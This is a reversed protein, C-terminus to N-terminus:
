KPIDVRVIALDWPGLTIKGARAVPKGTLVDRGNELSYAFERKGDSFNFYAHVEAGDALVAHKAKVGPPLAADALLIGAENLCDAVVKEQLVDSLVTGEYTLVGKGFENRTIAPYAGFVPHDYFALGRCTEPMLYEAWVSVRNAEGARFPDGKLRLPQKLNTFEQYSFGCAERLPGPATAWRVTANEDSFGSKFTMLVHGGGKVYDSLKRLLGDAAIYLAPVIVLAYDSFRPEEPYVFDTEINLGYLTRYLQDLLTMYGTKADFPMASLAHLSDLSYLIAVRNKKKLNALVPGVKRLEGAIRTVERYARGPELDHGLVGKWYTEQGFHLSHWHWYGVLNAGSLVHAYAALRLQGDYPPYQGESSWGTTQATTETVLYNSGKLSRNIDGSFAIELGTMDDQLGFYVNVAPVDVARAIEVQRVDPPLGGCFDHTIFQDPRKLGRVIAAQWSLFETVVDQLFREWELRYGPNLAGDRPPVEDFANVRQGWYNLGWAKNLADPTVFKRRLRERFAAQVHSDATGSHHTENDLQYGVVAPHDRFRAVLKRIIREAYRRYVPHTLDSMQRLGYTYRPLGTQKVQIEPHKKFLWAPISYTPTGLIVKIGARHARDLVRGLWDFDFRGDSPELVGWTSEGVRIFSIGAKEMLEFDKELRETPMYEWYYSAGYLITDFKPTQARLGSSALVTLVAVTIGAM